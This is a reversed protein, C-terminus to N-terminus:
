KGDPHKAKWAACFAADDEVRGTPADTSPKAWEGTKKDKGTDRDLLQSWYWEFEREVPGWDAADKRGMSEAFQASTTPRKLSERVFAALKPRYKGGDYHFLFHCFAWARTCFLYTMGIPSTEAVLRQESGHDIPKMLEALTWKESEGPRRQAEVVRDLLVREHRWVVDDLFESKASEVEVASLLAAVGYNLWAPLEIEVKTEADQLPKGRAIAAYEHRLQETAVHLLVNDSWKQAWGGACPFEDQEMLSEEGLYTFFKQQPPSYFARVGVPQGAEKLLRDFSGRDWMVLGTLVRGKETLTPLDDAFLERFRRHLELVLAADRKAFLQAKKAWVENQHVKAPNSTGDIPAEEAAGTKDNFVRKTDRVDVHKVEQFIVYPEAFVRTLVVDRFVPNERVWNAKKESELYRRDSKLRANRARIRAVIASMTTWEAESTRPDSDITKLRELVAKEDPDQMRFAEVCDRKCSELLVRLQRNDHAVQVEDPDVFTVSQRPPSTAPAPPPKDGCAASALAGLLIAFRRRPFTIFGEEDLSM